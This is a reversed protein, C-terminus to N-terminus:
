HNLMQRAGSCELSFKVKKLTKLNGFIGSAGFLDNVLTEWRQIVLKLIHDFNLHCLELQFFMRLYCFNYLFM